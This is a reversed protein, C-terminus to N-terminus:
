PKDSAVARSPMRQDVKAGAARLDSEMEKFGHVKAMALASDGDGDLEDLKAGQQILFRAVETHGYYSAMLLPTSGHRNHENIAVGLAILHRVVPLQGGAAALLLATDGHDDRREVDTGLSLLYQVVPLRGFVSARMLINSHQISRLEKAGGYSVLLKLLDLHGEEAALLAATFGRRHQQSPNAGHELLHHAVETQGKLAAAMLPTLGLGLPDRANVDYGREVYLRVQALDGREAASRLQYRPLLAQALSLSLLLALVPLSLTAYKMRGQLLDSIWELRDVIPQGNARREIRKRVSAIREEVTPHAAAPNLWSFPDRKQHSQDNLDMLKRLATSLTEIPAGYAIVANADAEMEQLRVLRRFLFFQLAQSALVGLTAGLGILWPNSQLALGFILAFLFIVSLTGAGFACILRNRIHHLSLHSIEHFM